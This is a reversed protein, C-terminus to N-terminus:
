KEVNTANNLRLWIMNQLTHKDKKVDQMINELYHINTGLYFLEASLEFSIRNERAVTKLFINIAVFMSLGM